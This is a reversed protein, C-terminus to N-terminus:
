EFDFAVVRGAAPIWGPTRDLGAFRVELPLDALGLAVDVHTPTVFVRARRRLLLRDLSDDAGLALARRLRADAYAALRNTWRTLPQAAERPLATRRPALVLPRLRRLERALQEHPADQTRPVAAVAFGAPHVLRLTGRAASWRWTGDHEFPALWDAPTRWVRPPRFGRGPRQRPGRGALRALLPWLADDRSPEDLLRPALLALLDWPDLAIGRERPRTFDVYLDLFLAFNLLYFVGGLRTEVVLEPLEIPPEPLLPPVPTPVARARSTRKRTRPARPPVARQPKPREDPVSAPAEPSPVSSAAEAGVQRTGTASALTAPPVAAAPATATAAAVDQPPAQATEAEAPPATRVAQPVPATDRVSPAQAPAPAQLTPVATLTAKDPLESSAAPVLPPDALARTQAATLWIRTAAAFASSRALQPARRLVLSVGLLLEAHPALPRETSEPVLKRWPPEPPPAGDDVVPRRRPPASSLPTAAASHLEPLGHASTVHLVLATAAHTRLAAVFPVAEGRAALLQLAAPVHEPTELWAAVVPDSGAAPSVHMDRWWWHLWATGDRADRALCALLEARDAFLVAEAAAPVAERAPRAASRLKRELSEIFAREWDPPPRADATELQLVGPLPDLVRRVCLVAAPPLGPPRLEARELLSGLRLRAQGADLAGGHLQVREIRTAAPTVVVPEEALEM